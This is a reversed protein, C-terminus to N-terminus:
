LRRTRYVQISQKHLINRWADCPLSGICFNKDICWCNDFHRSCIRSTRFSVASRYSLSMPPLYAVFSPDFKIFGVAIFIVGTALRLGFLSIDVFKSKRIEADALVHQEEFPVLKLTYYNRQM